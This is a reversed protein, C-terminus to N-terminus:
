LHGLETQWWLMRSARTTDKGEYSLMYRDIAASITICGTRELSTSLPQTTHAAGSIAAVPAPVLCIDLPSM